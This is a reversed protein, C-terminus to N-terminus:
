MHEYCTRVLLATKSSGGEGLFGSSTINIFTAGGVQQIEAASLARWFSQMDQCPQVDGSM